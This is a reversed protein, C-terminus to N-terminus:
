FVDAIAYKWVCLDPTPMKSYSGIFDAQGIQM